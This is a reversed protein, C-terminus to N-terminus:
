LYIKKCDQWRTIRLVTLSGQPAQCRHLQALRHLGRSSYSLHICYFSSCVKGMKAKSANVVWAPIAGKPDVAVFRTLQCENTKGEIPSVVYASANVVGRVFAPDVPVDKSNISVYM